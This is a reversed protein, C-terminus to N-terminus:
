EPALLVAAPHCASLFAAIQLLRPSGARFQRKAMHRSQRPRQERMRELKQLCRTGRVFAPM